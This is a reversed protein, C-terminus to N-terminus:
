DTTGDAHAKLFDIVEAPTGVFVIEVPTIEGQDETGNAM